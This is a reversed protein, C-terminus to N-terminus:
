EFIGAYSPWMSDAISFLILGAIIGIVILTIGMGKLLGSNPAPKSRVDAALTRLHARVDAHEADTSVRRRQRRIRQVDAVSVPASKALGGFDSLRNKFM